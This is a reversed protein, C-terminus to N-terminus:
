TSRAFANFTGLTLMNLVPSPIAFWKSSFRNRRAWQNSFYLICDQKALSAIQLLDFPQFFFGEHKWMYTGSIYEEVTPYTTTRCLPLSYFLLIYIHDVIPRGDDANGRWPPLSNKDGGGELRIAIGRFNSRRDYRLKWYLRKYMGSVYQTWFNHWLRHCTPWLHRWLSTM